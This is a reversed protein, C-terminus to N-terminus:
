RGIFGHSRRVKTGFAKAIPHNAAADEFAVIQGPTMVHRERDFGLYLPIPNTHMDVNRVLYVLADVADFHGQGEIRDFKDGRENWIAYKCHAILTTCRPHVIIRGARLLDRVKNVAAHKDDKATAAIGVGAEGLDAILRPDLDSWRGKPPHEPGWLELEKAVLTDHIKQTGAKKLVVEDEIFLTAKSWDYYGFVAVYLDPAYGIDMGVYRFYYRWLHEDREFEHVHREVKFEPLVARSEDIVIRAFIERQAETSNIGGLEQINGEITARDWHPNDYQTAHVLTGDIEAQAVWRQVFPHGPTESPTSPLIVRGGRELRSLTIQNVVYPLRRYHGCEDLGVLHKRPGRRADAGKDAGVMKLTANTSPFVWQSQSKLYRPRVDSPCTRLIDEFLPEITDRVQEETIAWLEMVINSVALGASVFGVLLGHTKGSGRGCLWVGIRRDQEWLQRWARRQWPLLFHLLNGERWLHDSAARGLALEYDRAAEDLLLSARTEQAQLSNAPETM